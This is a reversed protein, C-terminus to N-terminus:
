QEVTNQLVLANAVLRQGAQIGSTIEQMNGELMAGGVVELRRFGGGDAPVYVWDRDHLHLVASAPVVARTERKPSRFSATVFMGLRMMGPNQMELRVKATHLNADLV